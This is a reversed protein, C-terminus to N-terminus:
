NNFATIVPIHFLRSWAALVAHQICPISTNHSWWANAPAIIVDPKHAMSVLVPWILVQEYCVLAAGKRGNLTFIGPDLWHM